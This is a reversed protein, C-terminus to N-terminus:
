TEFPSPPKPKLIPPKVPPTAKGMGVSVELSAKFAPLGSDDTVAVSIIKNIRHAGAAGQTNFTVSVQLPNDPDEAFVGEGSWKVQDPTVPLPIDQTIAVYSGTVDQGGGPGFHEQLLIAPGAIVISQHRPALAPASNGFALIGDVPDVSVSSYNFVIKENSGAILIESVFVPQFLAGLSVNFNVGALGSAIQGDLYAKTLVIPVFSLIGGALIELFLIEGELVEIATTDVSVKPASAVNVIGQLTAGAGIDQISYTDVSTAKFTAEPFHYQPHYKGQIEFTVVNGALTLTNNDLEIRGNPDPMTNNDVRSNDVTLLAWASNIIQQFGLATIQIAFQENRPLLPLALLAKIQAEDLATPAAPAVNTGNSNDILTVGLRENGTGCVSNVVPIVPILTALAGNMSALNMQATSLESLVQEVFYQRAAGPQGDLGPILGDYQDLCFGFQIIIQPAAAM